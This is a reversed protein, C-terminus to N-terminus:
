CQCILKTMTLLGWDFVFQVGASASVEINSLFHSSLHSQNEGVLSSVKPLKACVEVVCLCVYIHM